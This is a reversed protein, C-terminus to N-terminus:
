GFGHIEALASLPLDSALANSDLLMAVSSDLKSPLWRFTRGACQRCSLAVHARCAANAGDRSFSTTDVGSPPRFPTLQYSSVLVVHAASGRAGRKARAKLELLSSQQVLGPM